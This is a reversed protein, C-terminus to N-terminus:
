GGSPAAEAARILESLRFLAASVANRIEFGVGRTDGRRLARLVSDIDGLFLTVEEDWDLEPLFYVWMRATRYYLEDYSQRLLSHGIVSCVAQHLRIDIRGFGALDPHGLLARCDERAEALDEIVAPSPALPQMDGILEALRLRFVTAERLREFDVETVTTGVGHKTTVLGQYELRQLVTRIPTRSVKFEGTLQDVDLRTGPPYILLAIRERLATHIAHFRRRSPTPEVPDGNLYDPALLVGDGDTNSKSGSGAEVSM